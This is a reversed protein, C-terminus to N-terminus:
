VIEEVRGKSNVRKYRKEPLGVLRATENANRYLDRISNEQLSRLRKTPLAGTDVVYAGFEFMRRGLKGLRVRNKQKL